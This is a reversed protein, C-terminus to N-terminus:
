LSKEIKINLEKIKTLLFEKSVKLESATKDINFNNKSLRYFLFEKKFTKLAEEYNQYPATLINTNSPSSLILFKEIDKETIEEKKVLIAIREVLNKLERVNGYWPYKVLARMANDSFYKKEGGYEETFLELFHDALLPIDEKRKRLPPIYIPVFNLLEFLDERFNGRKVEINLNKTTSSIIRVDVPIGESSGIPTIRGEELVRLLTAQNRPSLTEVAELFLTGGDAIAFKGKRSSVAYPVAGKEYGLLELEFEEEPIAALNVKIFNKEGRKSNEHIVRAVLEKGTGKEGSILVMRDTQVVQEIDEKLRRIGPSEGILITRVKSNMRLIRNEELLELRNIANKITLVVKELSLPKELFDFAGARTANVAMEITSHGSIMIIEINKYKQKITKLIQIGDKGPLLVDLIIIDFPTKELKELAEEGTIATEGIWGEDEVIQKLSRRVGSEDDVILIKRRSM